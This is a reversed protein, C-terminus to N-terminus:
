RISETGKFETKNLGYKEPQEFTRASLLINKLQQVVM